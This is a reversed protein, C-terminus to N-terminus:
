FHFGAIEAGNGGAATGDSQPGSDLFLAAVDGEDLGCEGVVVSSFAGVREAGVEGIRGLFRATFKMELCAADFPLFGVSRGCHRIYFRAFRFSESLVPQQVGGVVFVLSHGARFFIGSGSGGSDPCLGGTYTVHFEVKQEKKINDRHCKEDAATWAGGGRVPFM